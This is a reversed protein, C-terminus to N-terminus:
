MWHPENGYHRHYHQEAINEEHRMRALEGDEDEIHEEIQREGNVIALYEEKANMLCQHITSGSVTAQDGQHHVTAMPGEGPFITLTGIENGDKLLDYIPIDKQVQKAIFM